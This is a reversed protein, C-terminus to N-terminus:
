EEKLFSNTQAVNLYELLNPYHDAFYVSNSDDDLWHEESIYEYMRGGAIDGEFEYLAYARSVDKDTVEAKPKDFKFQYCLFVDIDAQTFLQVVAKGNVESIDANANLFSTMFPTTNNEIVNNDPLELCEFSLLCLKKKVGEIWRLTRLGYHNELVCWGEENPSYILDILERRTTKLDKDGICINTDLHGVINKNEGIPTTIYLRGYDKSKLNDCSAGSFDSTYIKEGLVVGKHLSYGRKEIELLLSRKSM